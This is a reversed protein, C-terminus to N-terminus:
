RDQSHSDVPVADEKINMLWVRWSIVPWDVCAVEVAHCVFHKLPM